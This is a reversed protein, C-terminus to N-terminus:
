LARRARRRADTISAGTDAVEIREIGLGDILRAVELKEEPKRRELSM